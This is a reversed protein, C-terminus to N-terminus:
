KAQRKHYLYDILRAAGVAMPFLGIAMLFYDGHGGSHPAIAMLLFFIVLAVGVLILTIANGLTSVHPQQKDDIAKDIGELLEPTLTQGKDLITEILKIRNQRKRYGFWLPITVILVVMAFFGLPVLIDELGNFM